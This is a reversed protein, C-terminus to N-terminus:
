KAMSDQILQHRFEYATGSQRLLGRERADELFAFLALPLDARAALWLRALTFRVWASDVSMVVALGASAAAAGLAGSRVGVVPSENYNLVLLAIVGTTAGLVPPPLL